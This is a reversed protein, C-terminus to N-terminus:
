LTTQPRTTAQHRTTQTGVIGSPTSTCQHRELVYKIQQILKRSRRASITPQSNRYQSDPQTRTTKDNIKKKKLCFVAYSIRMLSQLESTHEESREIAEEEAQRLNAERLAAIAQLSNDVTPLKVDIPTDALQRAIKLAQRTQQSKPDFRTEIAKLMTATEANGVKPQHM